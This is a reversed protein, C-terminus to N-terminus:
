VIKLINQNFSLVYVDLFNFITQWEWLVRFTIKLFDVGLKKVLAHIPFTPAPLIQDVLETM